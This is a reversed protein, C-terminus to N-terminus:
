HRDGIANISYRLAADRSADHASAIFAPAIAENKRCRLACSISVGRGSSISEDPLGTSGSREHAASIPAASCRDGGGAVAVGGDWGGSAGDGGVGAGVGAGVGTGVRTGAGTGVVRIGAGTM